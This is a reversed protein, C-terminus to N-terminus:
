ATAQGDAVNAVDAVAHRRIFEGAHVLAKRGEALIAAFAPWVHFMDEYVQLDVEGGAETVLEAYRTVDDVMGEDSGIFILVPPLGSLNGYVPSALPDRPDGGALYAEVLVPIMAKNSIPDRESNREWSAGPTTFDVFPSLLVVGGPRPARGASAATTAATAVVAALGGGASDGALIITEPPVREALWAYAALADDVAAPFPNEPALRYGVVLVRAGSARSLEAGLSRRGEKSGIFYGGGHFYLVTSAGDAGPVSVWDAPVPCGPEPQVIADDPVLSLFLKDDNHRLEEITSTTPSPQADIFRQKAAQAEATLAM